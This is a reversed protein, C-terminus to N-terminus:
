RPFPPKGGKNGQPSVTWREGFNKGTGYLNGNRDAKYGKGFNKGTGHINGKDDVTWGKGFDKGSGWYHREAAGASASVLVLVWLTIQAKGVM